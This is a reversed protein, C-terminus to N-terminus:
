GANVACLLDSLAVTLWTVESGSGILVKFDMHM